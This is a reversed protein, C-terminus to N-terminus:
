WYKNVISPIFNFNVTDIIYQNATQYNDTLQSTKKEEDVIILTNMFSHKILSPIKLKFLDKFM